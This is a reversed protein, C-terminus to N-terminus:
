RAEEHAKEKERLMVLLASKCIATAAIKDKVPWEWPADPNHISHTYGIGGAICIETDRFDHFVAAWLKKLLLLM